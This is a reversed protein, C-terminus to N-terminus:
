YRVPVVYAQNRDNLNDWMVPKKPILACLTAPYDIKITAPCCLFKMAMRTLKVMQVGGWRDTFAMHGRARMPHPRWGYLILALRDFGNSSSLWFVAVLVGVKTSPCCLSSLFRAPRGTAQVGRIREVEFHRLGLWASTTVVTLGSKRLQPCQWYLRCKGACLTRRM